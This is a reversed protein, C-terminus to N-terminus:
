IAVRLDGEVEAEERDLAGTTYTTGGMYPRLNCVESIKALRKHTAVISSRAKAIEAMAETLKAIASDTVIPGLELGEQASKIEMLLGAANAVAEDISQETAQIKAVVRQVYFAKDM